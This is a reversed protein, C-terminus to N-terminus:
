EPLRGNNRSPHRMMSGVKSLVMQIFGQPWPEGTVEELLVALIAAAEPEDYRVTAGYISPLPERCAQCSLQQPHGSLAARCCPSLFCIIGRDTTLAGWEGETFIRESLTNETREIM